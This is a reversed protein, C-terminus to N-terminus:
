RCSEVILVQRDRFTITIATPAAGIYLEVFMEVLAQGAAVPVHAHARGVDRGNHQSQSTPAHAARQGNVLVVPRWVVAFDPVDLDLCASVELYGGRVEVTEVWPNGSADLVPILVVAGAADTDIAYTQTTSIPSHRVRGFTDVAIKAHALRDDLAWRDLRNSRSVAQAAEANFGHPALYDHGDTLSELAFLNM